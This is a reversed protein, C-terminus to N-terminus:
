RRDEQTGARVQSWPPRLLATRRREAPRRASIGPRRLPRLSRRGDAPKRFDSCYDRRRKELEVLQRVLTLMWGAGFREREHSKRSFIESPAPQQRNAAFTGYQTDRHRVPERLRDPDTGGAPNGTQEHPRARLRFPNMGRLSRSTYKVGDLSRVSMRRQVLTLRTVLPPTVVARGPRPVRQGTFRPWARVWRPGMQFEALLSGRSRRSETGDVARQQCSCVPVPGVVGRPVQEDELPELGHALARAHVDSGGVAAAEICQRHSIM